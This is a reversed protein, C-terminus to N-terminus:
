LADVMLILDQTILIKTQYSYRFSFYFIRCMIIIFLFITPLSADKKNFNEVKQNEMLMRRAAADAKRM